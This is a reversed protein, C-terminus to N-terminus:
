KKMETAVLHGELWGHGQALPVLHEVTWRIGKPFELVEASHTPCRTVKSPCHQGCSEMLQGSGGQTSAM